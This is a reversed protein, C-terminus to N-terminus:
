RDTVLVSGILRERGVADVTRRAIELDTKGLEIIILVADAALAAPLALPNAFVSPLAIILNEDAPQEISSQGPGASTGRPTSSTWVSGRPTQMEMVLTAIDLLELAQANVTRARRGTLGAVQRLGEAIRLAWVPDSTPVVALSTWEHRRTAFWLEQLAKPPLNPGITTTTTPPPPPKLTRVTM